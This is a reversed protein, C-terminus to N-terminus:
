EGKELHGVTNRVIMPYCMLATLVYGLTAVASKADFAVRFFLIDALFLLCLILIFVGTVRPNKARSLVGIFAIFPLYSVAAQILWGDALVEWLGKNGFFFSSLFASVTALIFLLGGAFLTYLTNKM